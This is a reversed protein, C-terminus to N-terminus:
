LTPTRKSRRGRRSLNPARVLLKTGDKFKMLYVYKGFSSALFSEVMLEADWDERLEVPNIGNQRLGEKFKESEFKLWWVRFHYAPKLLRELLM